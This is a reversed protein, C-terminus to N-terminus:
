RAQAEFPSEAEEIAKRLEDTKRKDIAEADVLAKRLEDKRTLLTKFAENLPGKNSEAYEEKEKETIRSKVVDIRQKINVTELGTVKLQEAAKKAASLDLKKNTTKAEETAKKVEATINGIQTAAARMNQITQQVLGEHTDSGCGTLLHCFLFMCAVLGFRKM